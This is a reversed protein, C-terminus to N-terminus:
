TNGKTTNSNNTNGYRKREWKHIFKKNSLEVELEGRKLVTIKQLDESYIEMLVDEPVQKMPCADKGRYFYTHCQWIYKDRSKKRLYYKGCNGCVVKNFLAHRETTKPKTTVCKETLRKQVKEWLERTVIGPHANRVYYQPLTGKNPLLKKDLYNNVYLKQLLTDGVYKENRLLKVVRNTTWRQGKYDPPLSAELKATIDVTATGSAYDTYISRVIKAQEEDVHPVGKIIKYGFLRSLSMSKGEKYANKIRWKCNDSVSKSEAQAFSALLTLMVEGEGSNTHINQEEFYVDINLNKLERVVKLLVVTNRAFRSISKTLILDIKGAKADLILKQFETREEKTGSLGEDAYVGAYEWLPNSQILTSYHSIQASLSHLMADKDTSVRAYAAVRTLKKFNPSTQPLAEILRTM